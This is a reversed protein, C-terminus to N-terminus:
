TVSVPGITDTIAPAQPRVAEGWKSFVTHEVGNPKGKANVSDEEVPVHRGNARVYLITRISKHGSFQQTGGIADVRYGDLLRSVGLTYPAKLALEQAVDRSRVGVVIQSYTQNDTAFQVWKGADAAAQLGSLGALDSLAHANGKMYTIGGIVILSARDSVTGSGILVEQTGSAPGADGSSLISVKSDTGASVYHVSWANTTAMAERYLTAAGTAAGAPTAPGSLGVTLVGVMVTCTGILKERIRV